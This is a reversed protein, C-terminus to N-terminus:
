PPFVKFNDELKKTSYVNQAIAATMLWAPCDNYIYNCETLGGIEVLLMKRRYM